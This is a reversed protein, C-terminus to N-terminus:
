LIFRQGTPDVVLAWGQGDRELTGNITIEATDLTYGAKKLSERLAEFSVPKDPKPRFEGLGKKIDTLQIEKLKPAFELRSM